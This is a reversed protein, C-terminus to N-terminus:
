RQFPRSKITELPCNRFKESLFRGRYECNVEWKPDLQLRKLLHQNRCLLYKVKISAEAILVSVTCVKNSILYSSILQFLMLMGATCIYFGRWRYKIHVTCTPIGMHSALFISVYFYKKIHMHKGHRRPANTMADVEPVSSEPEFRV